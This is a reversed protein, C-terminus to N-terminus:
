VMSSYGERFDNLKGVRTQSRSARDLVQFTAVAVHSQNMAFELRRPTIAHQPHNSPTSGGQGEREARRRSACSPQAHWVRCSAAACHHRAHMRDVLGLVTQVPAAVVINTKFPRVKRIAEVGTLPSRAVVNVDVVITVENLHIGYTPAPGVPVAIVIATGVVIVSIVAPGVFPIAIPRAIVVSSLM